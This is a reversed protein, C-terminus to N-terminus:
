NRTSATFATPLLADEFTTVMVGRANEAGDSGLDRVPKMELVEAYTEHPEGADL